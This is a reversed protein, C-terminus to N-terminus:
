AERDTIEYSTPATFRGGYGADWEYWTAPTSDRSGYGADYVLEGEDGGVSGGRIFEHFAHAEAASRFGRLIRLHSVSGGCSPFVSAM